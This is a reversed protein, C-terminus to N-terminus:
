EARYNQRQPIVGRVGGRPDAVDNDYRPIIHWHLHHVTRGASIGDNVGYNFGSPKNDREIQQLAATIYDQSKPNDASKLMQSYVDTLNLSKLITHAQKVAKVRISWFIM